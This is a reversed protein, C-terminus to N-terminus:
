LNKISSQYAAFSIDQIAKSLNQSKDGRTMICILYPHNPTYVIGCDHLQFEGTKPNEREGFKHAVVIDAPLKAVIGDKFDSESLLKLAKESMDRNLYSANFLIRFFSAYEKVSIVNGMDLSSEANVDVGMHNYLTVLSQNDFGGNLIMAATNDSYRIAYSILEEITYSKNYEIAKTSTINQNVLDQKITNVVVRNLISPDAEAVKYYLIMVPVKLLSAPSFLEQENIGIWPGNNLDRYYVSIHNALKNDKANRVSETLAKRLDLINDESGTDASDCELLPNIFKYGATSRVENIDRHSPSNVLLFSFSLGLLFLLVSLIVALYLSLKVDRRLSM